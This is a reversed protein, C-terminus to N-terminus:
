SAERLEFNENIMLTIDDIKEAVVNPVYGDPFFSRLYVGFLHAEAGSSFEIAEYPNATYELNSIKPFAERSTHVGERMWDNRQRPKM